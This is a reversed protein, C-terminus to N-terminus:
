PRAANRDAFGALVASVAEAPSGSLLRSRPMWFESAVQSHAGAGVSRLTLVALQQWAAGYAGPNSRIAAAISASASAASAAAAALCDYHPTFPNSHIAPGIYTVGNFGYTDFGSSVSPFVTSVVCTYITPYPFTVTVGGRHWRGRQMRRRRGHLGVTRASYANQVFGTCQTSDMLNTLNADAAQIREYAAQQAYLRLTSQSVASGSGSPQAANPQLLASGAGRCATGAPPSRSVCFL